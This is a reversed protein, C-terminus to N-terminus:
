SADSHKARERGTDHFRDLYEDPNLDSERLLSFVEVGEGLSPGDEDIIHFAMAYNTYITTDGEYGKSYREAKAIAEDFSDARVILIREEYVPAPLNTLRYVLRVGYWPETSM